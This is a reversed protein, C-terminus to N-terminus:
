NKICRVNAGYNRRTAQVSAASSTRIWLARSQEGEVTSSWYVGFGTMIGGNNLRVGPVGWRLPSAAAGAADNTKWSAREDELEQATPIRYGKPCPNNVGNAGQWLDPNAPSRWDLGTGKIFGGHAPVDTSSLSSEFGINVECQHGDSRRGWQYLTRDFGPDTTSPNYDGLNRDMWIKGTPSVLDVVNALGNELCGVSGSPYLSKNSPPIFSQQEGYVTGAANTAFARVYVARDTYFTDFTIKSVFSGLGAGGDVVGYLSNGGITPLSQYGCVVGRATVEGGGDSTVNGGATASGLVVDTAATTVVTPLQVAGTTFSWENGYTTGAANTAFARVYYLTTPKLGTIAGSFNGIGTGSNTLTQLDITPHEATSWVVGRATIEGGGDSTITGGAMASKATIDAVPTTSLVPLQIQGTTFNLETGYSTGVSNTAYARVYYKVNASLGTLASTFTNLGTGDNTKTALDITPHEQTSWVVGKALIDSGGSQTITGGSVATKITIDTIPVTTIVPATAEPDHNSCAICIAMVAILIQKKM